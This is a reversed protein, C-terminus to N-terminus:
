STEESKVRNNCEACWWPKHYKNEAVRHTPGGCEPCKPGVGFLEIITEGDREVTKPLIEPRKTTM